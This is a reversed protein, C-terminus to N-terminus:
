GKVSELLKAAGSADLVSLQKRRWVNCAERFETHHGAHLGFVGHIIAVEGVVIPVPAGLAREHKGAEQVRTNYKRETGIGRHCWEIGPHGHSSGDAARPITPFRPCASCAM